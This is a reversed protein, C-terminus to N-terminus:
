NIKKFLKEVNEKLKEFNNEAGPLVNIVIDLGQINKEKVLERIRRKIKNREVAKQSYKKGVVIGFRSQKLNNKKYKLYISDQKIGKGNKFVGEFDKNRTLRNEKKLM